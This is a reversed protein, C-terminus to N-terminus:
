EDTQGRTQRYETLWKKETEDLHRKKLLDPRKQWTRILAQQHRWQTIAEHDGSLLVKPVTLDHFTQPRTYHPYDLLNQAFSDQEASAEDGLAGPLLRTIVDVLVMAPLEGGSLIYDGISWQEDIALEVIRQDIGEYRGSVLILSQAQALQKVDTQTLLQGQPTLQIVKTNVPAQSKANQIAQYLPEPKMVMGPGGGYPRDDVTRHRDHTYDRPNWFHYQILGKKLARGPISYNLAEFMEPFLTVFHYSRTNTNM